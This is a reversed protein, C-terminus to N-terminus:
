VWEPEFIGEWLSPEYRTVKIEGNSKKFHQFLVVGGEIRVAILYVNEPWYSKRIPCHYKLSKDIADQITMFNKYM